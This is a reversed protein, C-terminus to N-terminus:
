FYTRKHARHRRSSGDFIPPFLGLTRPSTPRSNPQCRRASAVFLGVLIKLLQHQNAPKGMMAVFSAWNHKRALVREEASGDDPVRMAKRVEMVGKAGVDDCLVIEFGANRAAEVSSFEQIRRLVAFLKRNTSDRVASRMTNMQKLFASRCYAVVASRAANRPALKGYDRVMTQRECVRDGNTVRWQIGEAKDCLASIDRIFENEGEPFM